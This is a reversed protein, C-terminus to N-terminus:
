RKARLDSISSSSRSQAIMFSIMIPDVAKAWDLWDPTMRYNRENRGRMARAGTPRGSGLGGRGRRLSRGDGLAGTAPDGPGHLRAGYPGPRGARAAPKLAGYPPRVGPRRASVARRGAGGTPAPDGPGHLRAGYPGPRGARAAPKLAVYPPRVGPRRASVARRCFLLYM